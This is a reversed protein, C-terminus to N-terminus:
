RNQPTIGQGPSIAMVLKRHRDSISFEGHFFKFESFYGSPAIGRSTVRVGLAFIIQFIDPPYSKTPSDLIHDFNIIAYRGGPFIIAVLSFVSQIEFATRPHALTRRSPYYFSSIVNGSMEVAMAVPIIITFLNSVDVM